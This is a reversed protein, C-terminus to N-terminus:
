REAVRFIATHLIETAVESGAVYAVYLKIFQHGKRERKEVPVARVEVAEGVRLLKRFRIESGTHIWAPMIFQRVLVQNAQSLIAHPHVAGQKFVDTDDSVRAAYDRNHAEDPMWVYPAFPEDVHVTDWGIDVRQAPQSPGAVYARADVPPLTPEIACELTALLVDGPNRCEVSAHSADVERDLLSLTEGDYAPKLFRTTVSSGSLWRTGFRKTLPWALHGFVTVGPVLAGTFGFRKAIEDSHIKNESAQAYNRAVSTHPM